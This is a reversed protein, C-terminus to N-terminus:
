VELRFAGIKRQMRGWGLRLGHIIRSVRSESM